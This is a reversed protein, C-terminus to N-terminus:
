WRMVDAVELRSPRKPGVQELTYLRAEDRQHWIWAEGTWWRGVLKEMGKEGRRDFVTRVAPYGMLTRPESELVRSGARELITAHCRALDSGALLIEPMGMRRAVLKLHKPTEFTLAVNAPEPTLEQFVMAEPLRLGIGFLEWRRLPGDNAEYSDLLPTWAATFADPDHAPFVWQLLLGIDPRFLSAQCPRGPQEHGILFRGIQSFELSSFAKAAAPDDKELQRRHIENLIRPLDPAKPVKRWVLQARFSEREFFQFQGKAADLSYATIEWHPPLLFAFGEWALHRIRELHAPLPDGSRQPAAADPM